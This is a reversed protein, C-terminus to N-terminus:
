SDARPPPDPPDAHHTARTPSRDIPLRSGHEPALTVPLALVTDDSPATTPLTPPALPAHSPAQSCSPGRCPKSPEIPKRPQAHDGKGFVHGGCAARLEGPALFLCAAAALAVIARPRQGRGILPPQSTV